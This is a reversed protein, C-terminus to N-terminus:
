NFERLEGGVAHQSIVLGDNSSCLFCSVRWNGDDWADYETGRVVGAIQQVRRAPIAGVAARVM